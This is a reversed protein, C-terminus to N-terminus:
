NLGAFLDIAASIEPQNRELIEVVYWLICMALVDARQQKYREVAALDDFLILSPQCARQFLVLGYRKM